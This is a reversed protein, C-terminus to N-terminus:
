KSSPGAGQGPIGADRSLRRAVEKALLHVLKLLNDRVTEPAPKEHLESVTHDTEAM